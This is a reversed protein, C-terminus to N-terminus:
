GLIQRFEADLTSHAEDSFHDFALAVAQAPTMVKSGRWPGVLWGRGTSPWFDVRRTGVLRLHLPNFELVELEPYRTKLARLEEINQAKLRTKWNQKGM